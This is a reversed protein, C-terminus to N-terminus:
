IGRLNILIICCLFAKILDQKEKYIFNLIEAWLVKTTFMKKEMKQILPILRITIEDTSIYYDRQHLLVISSKIFERIYYYAFIAKRLSLNYKYYNKADDLNDKIMDLIFPYSQYCEKFNNYNIESERITESLYIGRIFKEINRMEKLSFYKSIKNLPNHCNEFIEINMFMLKLAKKLNDINPVVAYIVEELGKSKMLKFEEYFDSVKKFDNALATKIFRREGKLNCETFIYVKEKNIGEGKQIYTELELVYLVVFVKDLKRKEIQELTKNNM